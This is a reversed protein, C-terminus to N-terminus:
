NAVQVTAHRIVKDGLMFGDQFVQSIVNEGLKEDEIHMVANHKEPDFVQGLAEIEKVNLKKLIERSQNFIKILGQKHPSDDDGETKSARELNDYVALFERIMDAKADQYLADKERATRKRYNDYEAALRLYQDKMTDIQKQAQDLEKAAAEMKEVQERTFSIMEPADKKATKKETDRAANKEPNVDPADPTQDRKEKSKEPQKEREKGSTQDTGTTKDAEKERKAEREKESKQGSQNKFKDAQKESEKSIKSGEASAMNTM